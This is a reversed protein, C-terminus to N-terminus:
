FCSAPPMIQQWLQGWSCCCHNIESDSAPVSADETSVLCIGSSFPQLLASDYPRQTHLLDETASHQQPYHALGNMTANVNLQRFRATALGPICTTAMADAFLQCSPAQQGSGPRKSTHFLCLRYLRLTPRSVNISNSSWTNQPKHTSAPRGAGASQQQLAHQGQKRAQGTECHYSCRIRRLLKRASSKASSCVKVMSPTSCMHQVAALSVVHAASADSAARLINLTINPMVM